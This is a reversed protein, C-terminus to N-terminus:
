GDVEEDHTIDPRVGIKDEILEVVEMVADECLSANDRVFDIDFTLTYTRRM